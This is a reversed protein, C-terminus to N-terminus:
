DGTNCARDHDQLAGAVIEAASASGGNILVVMDVNGAILPEEVSYYKKVSAEDRGKTSVVLLDRALFKDCVDVAIDLLGGPNGRLDLVISHM